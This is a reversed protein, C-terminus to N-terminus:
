FMYIRYICLSSSPLFYLSASLSFSLLALCLLFPIFFILSSTFSPFTLHFPAKVMEPLYVWFSLLIVYFNGTSVQSYFSLFLYSKFSDFLYLLLFYNYVIYSFKKRKLLKFIGILFYLNNWQKKLSEGICQKLFSNKSQGTLQPVHM